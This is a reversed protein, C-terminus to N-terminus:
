WESSGIKIAMDVFQKPHKFSLMLKTFSNSKTKSVLKELLNKERLEPIFKFVTRAVYYCTNEKRRRCTKMETLIADLSLSRQLNELFIRERSNSSKAINKRIWIYKKHNIKKQCIESIKSYSTIQQYYKGFEPKIFISDCFKSIWHGHASIIDPRIFDLYYNKLKKTNYLRSMVPSGLLGLDIINFEKYWSMVGLDPNSVTPRKINHAAAIQTFELRTQDFTNIDWGLYYPKKAVFIFFIAIIPVGYKKWRRFTEDNLYSLCVFIYLLSFVATPTSLRGYDIRARGFLFVSCVGLFILIQLSTVLFKKDLSNKVTAGIDEKLPILVVLLLVGHIRILKYTYIIKSKLFNGDFTFLSILNSQVSIEQAYATNPLLYGFYHYRWITFAIWSLGVLSSFCLAKLNQEKRWWYYSFCVCVPAIYYVSELRVITSMFVVPVLSYYIKGGQIFKYLILLSAPFLIHALANEMGSANWFYFCYLFSLSLASLILSFIYRPLSLHLLFLNFIYAIGFSCLVTQLWSYAKFNIDFYKYLLAYLFTQLPSSSAEVRPGSPSVGFFGFDVFNRGQSMTIVGDDRFEFLNSDYFSYSGIIILVFLGTGVIQKKLEM